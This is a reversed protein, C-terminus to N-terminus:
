STSETFFEGWIECIPKQMGIDDILFDTYLIKFLITAYNCWFCQGAACKSPQKCGGRWGYIHGLEHFEIACIYAIFALFNDEPDIGDKIINLFISVRDPRPYWRGSCTRGRTSYTFEIIESVGHQDEM